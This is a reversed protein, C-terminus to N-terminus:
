EPVVIRTHFVAESFVLTDALEDNVFTAEFKGWLEKGKIREIEVFNNESKLLLYTKGHGHGDDTSTFYEAGSFADITRIDTRTLNYLGTEHPVKFIVITERLFGQENYKDVLIDIGQEYPQNIGAYLDGNWTEGNKQADFNGWYYGTDEKSCSFLLCLSTSLIILNKM